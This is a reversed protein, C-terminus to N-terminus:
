CYQSVVYCVHRQHKKMLRGIPATVAMARAHKKLDLGDLCEPWDMLFLIALRSIVPLMKSVLAETM